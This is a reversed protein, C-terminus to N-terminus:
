EEALPNGQKDLSMDFTSRLTHLVQDHGQTKTIDKLFTDLPDDQHPIPTSHPTTSIVRAHATQSPKPNNHWNGTPHNWNYGPHNRTSCGEKHCIFCCNEHMHHAQEVPSLTLYDMDMANSDHHCSSGGYSPQPGRRLSTIHCYGGEIKFAKPYLEEMTTSAKVAGSLTLYIVIQPDLGRLSWELLTHYNTM